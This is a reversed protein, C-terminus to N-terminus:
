RKSHGGDVPVTKPNPPDIELPATSARRHIWSLPIQNVHTSSRFERQRISQGM